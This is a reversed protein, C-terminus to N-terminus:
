KQLWKRVMDPESVMEMAVSDGVVGANRLFM